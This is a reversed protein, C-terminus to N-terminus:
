IDWVKPFIKARRKKTVTIDPFDEKISEAPTHNTYRLIIDLSEKALNLTEENSPAASGCGVFALCGLIIISLLMAIKKM